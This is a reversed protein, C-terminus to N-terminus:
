GMTKLVRGLTMDFDSQILRMISQLEGEGVHLRGALGDRTGTVLALRAQALWRSATAYHVGYMRGLDRVGLGHIASQRLLNRQRSDLAQAAEAFAARFQVQYHERLYGLEPDDLGEAVGDLEDAVDHHEGLPPQKRRTANFATRLGVVRVWSGLSGQGSYQTIVPATNENGVLLRNRVIQELDELELHADTVRRLARRLAPGHLEDLAAIARTDGQACACALYLDEARLEDLLVAADAGGPLRAGVWAAFDANSIGLAPWAASAREICRILAAAVTPDKAKTEHEPCVARAFAELPSDAPM